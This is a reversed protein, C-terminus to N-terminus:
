TGSAGWPSVTALIPQPEESSWWGRNVSPWITSIILLLSFLTPPTSGLFAM